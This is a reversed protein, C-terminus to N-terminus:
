SHQTACAPCNSLLQAINEKRNRQLPWGSAWLMLLGFGFTAVVARGASSPRACNDPQPM